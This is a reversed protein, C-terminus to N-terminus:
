NFLNKFNWSYEYIRYQFCCCSLLITESHCNGIIVDGVQFPSENYNRNAVISKIDYNGSFEPRRNYTKQVGIYVNVSASYKGDDATFMVTINQFMNLEYYIIWSFFEVPKLNKCKKHM